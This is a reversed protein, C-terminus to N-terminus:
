PVNISEKSEKIIFTEFLNNEDRIEGNQENVLKTAIERLQMQKARSENIFNIIYPKLM